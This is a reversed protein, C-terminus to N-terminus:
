SVGGAQAMVTTRGTLLAEGDETAISFEIVSIVLGARLSRQAVRGSFALPVDVPCARHSEIEQGTHLTGPPLETANLLSRIARAAVALPPAVGRERYLANTDAVADLYAALGASSLTFSTKPFEHGQPLDFLITRAPSAM